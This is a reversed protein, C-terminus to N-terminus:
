YWLFLFGWRERSIDIVNFLKRNKEMYKKKIKSLSVLRSGLAFYFRISAYLPASFQTLQPPRNITHSSSLCHILSVTGTRVFCKAIFKKHKVNKKKLSVSHKFLLRLLYRFCRFLSYMVNRWTAKQSPRSPHQKCNFVKTKLEENRENDLLFAYNVSESLKERQSIKRVEDEAGSRNAFCRFKGRVWFLFM